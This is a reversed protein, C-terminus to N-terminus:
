RPLSWCNGSGKKVASGSDAVLVCLRSASAPRQSVSAVAVPSAGWYAMWPGAGPEGADDPSVSDWFFHVRNGTESPTFGSAQFWVQYAGNSVQIDTIKASAGASGGGFVLAAAAGAAVVILAVALGGLLMRKRGGSRGGGGPSVAAPQARRQAPPALTETQVAPASTVSIAVPATPAHSPPAAPIPPPPSGADPPTAVAPAAPEIAATEATAAAANALQERAYLAAGLAITHKPHTDRSIPRGTVERLLQAVLPIRSSGGVLLIRDVDEMALGASRVTRELVAATERVRPRVLNELEARTLRVETQVAPLLIQITTETDSSLSEKAGRCEERLRGIATRAAAGGDGEIAARGLTEAVHAFVAEDFDIGGLREIGEPRGLIEFSGEMTKRLVAADFTGGGFDYVAITAGAEIREQSAYHLAAAVPEPLFLADGVEAQRVMQRMLDLKYEGYSAPHTVALLAPPEGREEL